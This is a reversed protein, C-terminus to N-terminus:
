GIKIFPNKEPNLHDPNPKGPGADASGNDPEAGTPRPSGGDGADATSGVDVGLLKVVKGFEDVESDLYANFEKEVDEPKTPTFKELRGEIFAAQKATLKRSSKQAEYLPRIRGKASELRLSSLEAEKEQLKKEYDARTKDFGEETRKRHAFEGAVARRTETEILGKVSPDDALTDAGFVDSPKIKEAKVLDRIQDITVVDGM